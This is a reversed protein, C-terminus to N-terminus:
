DEGSYLIPYRNKRIEAYTEAKTAPPKSNILAPLNNGFIGFVPLSKMEPPIAFTTKTQSATEM